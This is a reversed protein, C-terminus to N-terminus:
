LRPGFQACPGAFFRGLPSVVRKCCSLHFNVGQADRSTKRARDVCSLSAALTVAADLLSAFISPTVGPDSEGNLQNELYSGGKQGDCAHEV